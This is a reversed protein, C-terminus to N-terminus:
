VILSVSVIMVGVEVVVVVIVVITVRLHGGLHFFTKLPIERCRPMQGELAPLNLTSHCGRFGVAYSYDGRIGLGRREGLLQSCGVRRTFPSPM